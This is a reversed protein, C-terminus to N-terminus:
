SAVEPIAFKGLNEKVFEEVLYTNIVHMIV